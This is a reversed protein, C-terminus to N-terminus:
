LFSRTYTSAKKGVPCYALCRGCFNADTISSIERAEWPNQQSVAQLYSDPTIPDPPIIDKSGLAAKILGRNAWRCRWKDNASYEFTKDEIRFQVKKNPSIAQIPCIRICIDCKSRDCLKGKAYVPDPELRAETLVSVLRVRPGADPVMFNAHWGIEGLGAAVAAHRHSFAAELKVQEFPPSAPIPLSMHGEKELFRALAHAAENLEANLVVFGYMMYSYVAHRLGGRAAKVAGAVGEGIRVGMVVVSKAQPLLDQPRHGAPAEKLREVPTIGIYDMGKAFALKRV